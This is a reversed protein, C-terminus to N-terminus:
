FGLIDKSISYPTVGADQGFQGMPRQGDHGGLWGWVSIPKMVTEEGGILQHTTTCLMHASHLALLAPLTAIMNGESRLAGKQLNREAWEIREADSAWGLIGKPLRYSLSLLLKDLIINRFGFELIRHLNFPPKISRM